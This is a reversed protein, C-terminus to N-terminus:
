GREIMVLGRGAIMLVGEKMVLSRGKIALDTGIIVLGMEDMVGDRTIEGHGNWHGLGNRDDSFGKSDQGFGMRDDGLEM